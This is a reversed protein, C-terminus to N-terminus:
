IFGFLEVWTEFLLSLAAEIRQWWISVVSSPVLISLIRFLTFPDSPSLHIRALM